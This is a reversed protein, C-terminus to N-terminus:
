KSDLAVFSLSLKQFKFTKAYSAYSVSENLGQIPPDRRIFSLPFLTQIIVSFEIVNDRNPIKKLSNCKQNM